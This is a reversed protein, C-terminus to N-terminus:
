SVTASSVKALAAVQKITAVATGKQFRSWRQVANNRECGDPTLRRLHRRAAIHSAQCHRACGSFSFIILGQTLVLVLTMGDSTIHAKGTLWHRAVKRAIELSLIM